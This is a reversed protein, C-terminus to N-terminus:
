HYKDVDYLLKYHLELSDGTLNVKLDKNAEELIEKM